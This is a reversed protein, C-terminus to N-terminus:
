VPEFGYMMVQDGNDNKRFPVIALKMKMGINLEASDSVLLRTELRLRDALEIYGVYYPQFSEETEEGRYPFKPLFSQSTWTWLKGETPLAILKSQTHGCKPCSDQQPFSTNGCNTCESAKLSPSSAPWDFINEDVPVEKM